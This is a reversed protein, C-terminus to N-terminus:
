RRDFGHDKLQESPIHGHGVGVGVDDLKAFGDFNASQLYLRTVQNMTVAMADKRNWQLDGGFNRLFGGLNDLFLM